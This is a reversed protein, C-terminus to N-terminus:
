HTQDFDQVIRLAMDIDDYFAKILVFSLNSRLIRPELIDKKSTIGAYIQKDIFSIYIDKKNKEIFHVIAEQMPDSLISIVHTDETAYVTFKERFSENLIENDVNIGEQWTFNKIAKTLYQRQSRPWLIIKGETEENFIAHLFIGKFIGQLKNSVPSVERVDLESLEFDMEGIKGHIYDEGKYFDAKTSFIGSQLFRKKSIFKKPDYSLERYNVLQENMFHLILNVIRPKFTRVFQRIKSALFFIYVGVPLSLLLTLFFINIYIDLILLMVLLTASLGLLVLLRKRSNEMRLLEPYISHNYFVRFEGERHKKSTNFMQLLVGEKMAYPSFVIKQVGTKKLIHQMLIFAVVIMDVRKEPLNEMELRENFTASVISQFFTKFQDITISFPKTPDEQLSLHQLVDFSGAAGILRKVKYKEFARNLPTLVEDLFQHIAEREEMSIPDSKHFDHFLVAIGVPFSQAWLIGFKNVIIFEVSGGGIDMILDPEKHSPVMYNVGEYILRAERSGSILQIDIGTVKKVKKIFEEGNTATRLAATGLAMQIEVEFEELKNKFEKMAELGREIAEPCITGIGKAALKVFRRERYIERFGDIGDDEAILLHFTNTGLDMVAYRYM